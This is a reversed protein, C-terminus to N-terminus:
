NLKKLKIKNTGSKIKAQINNLQFKIKVGKTNIQVIIVYKIQNINKHFIEFINEYIKKAIKAININKNLKSNITEQYL